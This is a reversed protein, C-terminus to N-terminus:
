PNPPNNLFKLARELIVQAALADLAGSTKAAKINKHHDIFEAAGASSLREDVFAIAVDALWAPEAKLLNYIVQRVGQARPGESDDLNLPLGVILGAIEYGALAKELAAMDMAWKGRTITTLPTAMQWDPTSLAIGITKTGIDLAALRAPPTLIQPFDQLKLISSM